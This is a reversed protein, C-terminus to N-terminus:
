FDGCQGTTCRVTRHAMPARAWCEAVFKTARPFEGIAGHSFNVPSDPSGIAGVVLPRYRSWRAVRPMLWRDSPRVPSDPAGLSGLSCRDAKCSFSPSWAGLLSQEHETTCRVTRHAVRYFALIAKWISRWHSRAANPSYFPGRPAHLVVGLM